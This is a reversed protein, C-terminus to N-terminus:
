QIMERVLAKFASGRATFSEFMDQSACAPSFLVCDGAKALGCAISMVEELTECCVCPCIDAITDKIKQRDQGFIVAHKVFRSVPKQLPSFDANKGTGGLILIINRSEDGCSEIASVTSAVNTAKSDNYYAIDNSVAVRECRHELGKFRRLSDLMRKTDLNLISGLALAAMVNLANHRGHIPLDDVDALRHSGLAIYSSDGENTLGFDNSDSPADSGFTLIRCQEPIAFSQQIDRNVLAVSCNNYINGKTRYYHDVSEYRDLHDPSLNLVVSACTTLHLALELQYSSVEIIYLSADQDLLDLCPTGINGGVRVNARQEGALHALLATVTSKGNSGTIAVVPAQAMAGFMAVDGTLPVGHERATVLATTSLPVGPSVVIEEAMLLKEETIPSFEIHKKLRRLETLYAPAPNDDMVSFSVGAGVFHKACSIGTNGLGVIVKGAKEVESSGVLGNSNLANGSQKSIM